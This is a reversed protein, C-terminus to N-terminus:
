RTPTPPRRPRAAASAVSGEQAHAVDATEVGRPIATAQNWESLVGTAPATSRAGSPLMSSLAAKPRNEPLSPMGTARRGCAEGHQLALEDSRVVTRDGREAPESLHRPARLSREEHRRRRAAHWQPTADPHERAAVIQHHPPAGRQRSSARGRHADVRPRRGAGKRTGCADVQGGRHAWCGSPQPPTTVSECTPVASLMEPPADGLGRNSPVVSAANLACVVAM